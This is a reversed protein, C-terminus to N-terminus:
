CRSSEPSQHMNSIEYISYLPLDYVTSNYMDAIRHKPKAPQPAVKQSVVKKPQEVQSTELAKKSDDLLCFFAVASLLAACSIGVVIKKAVM